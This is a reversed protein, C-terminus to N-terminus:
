PLMQRAIHDYIFPLFIIGSYHTAPLRLHHDDALRAARALAEANAPPVVTDRTASYLWTRRPDLRHAIRTPEVSWLYKRLAEGELGLQALKKRVQATEREGEAILKPLDGGALTVFSFAFGDDLSSALAAVFGGLSTGQVAIRDRDVAPLAAVADRGRRVDSVAQRVLPVFQSLDPEDRHKRLGYGPLHILFTHMGKERLGAAIIRGVPMEKGSEHIVVLAPAQKPQGEANKVWYCEASVLDNAENGIPRPSPFRLIADWLRNAEPRCRVDFESCTWCFEELCQRADDRDERIAALTDRARYVSVEDAARLPREFLLGGVVSIGLVSIGLVIAHNLRM